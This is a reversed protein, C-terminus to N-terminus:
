PRVQNEEVVAQRTERQQSCVGVFRAIRAVIRMDEAVRRDLTGFAVTLFVRVRVAERIVAGQAVVGDVPQLPLEIVVTLRIELQAACMELYAALSTVSSRQGCLGPQAAATRVTVPGIVHMVAFEAKVTASAM